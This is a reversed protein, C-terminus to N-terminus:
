LMFFGKEAGQRLLLCCISVLAPSNIFCAGNLKKRVFHQQPNKNHNNLAYEAGKHGLEGVVPPTAVWVGAPCYQPLQTCKVDRQEFWENEQM